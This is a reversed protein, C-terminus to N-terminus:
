DELSLYSDSYASVYSDDHDDIITTKVEAKQTKIRRRRRCCSFCCTSRSLLIFMFLFFFWYSGVLGLMFSLAFVAVAVVISLPFVVLVTLFCCTIKTCKNRNSKVGKYYSGYVCAVGCYIGFCFSSILVFLWGLLFMTQYILPILISPVSIQLANISGCFPEIM